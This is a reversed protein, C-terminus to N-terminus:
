DIRSRDSKLTSLRLIIGKGTTYGFLYLLAIHIRETM